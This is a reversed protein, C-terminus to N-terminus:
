ILMVPSVKFLCTLDNKSWTDSTLLINRPFNYFPLSHGLVLTWPGKLFTGISKIGSGDELAHSYTTCIWCLKFCRALFSNDKCNTFSQEIWLSEFKPICIKYLTVLACAKYSVHFFIIGYESAMSGKGGINKQLSNNHGQFLIFLINLIGQVQKILPVGM